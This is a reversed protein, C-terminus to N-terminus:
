KVRQFFKLFYNFMEQGGFLYFKNEFGIVGHYFRGLGPMKAPLPDIKRNRYDIVYSKTSNVDGGYIM